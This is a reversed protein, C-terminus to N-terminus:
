GQAVVEVAYTVHAPVAERVARDLRVRDVAAPDPVGIRVTVHPPDVGPPAAGPTASWVAGGSEVLEVDVGAVLRVHEALGRATGRRRHAVVAADVVARRRRDPWTEDLEVGVWGALWEVFDDPAVLPDVYAALNDLVLFVPSLVDDLGGTFRQAFADELYVAPLRQGIPHPTPRGPLDGRSM